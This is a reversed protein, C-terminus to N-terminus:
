ESASSRLMREGFTPVMSEALMKAEPEEGVEYQVGLDGPLPDFHLRLGKLVDGPIGDPFAACRFGDRHRCCQCPSLSHMTNRDNAASITKDRERYGRFLRESTREYAAAADWALRLKV